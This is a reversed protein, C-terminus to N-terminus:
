KRSQNLSHAMKDIESEPSDEGRGGSMEAVEMIPPGSSKKGHEHQGSRQRRREPRPSKYRQDSRRNRGTRREDERLRSKKDRYQTWGGDPEILKVIAILAIPLFAKWLPVKSM